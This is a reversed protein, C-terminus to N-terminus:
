EGQYQNPCCNCQYLLPNRDDPCHFVNCGCSCRFSKGGVTLMRQRINGNEDVIPRPKSIEMDKGVLRQKCCPCEGNDSMLAPNLYFSDHRGNIWKYEVLKWFLDSSHNLDCCTGIDLYLIYEILWKNVELGGWRMSILWEAVRRVPSEPPLSHLPQIQSDNKPENLFANNM